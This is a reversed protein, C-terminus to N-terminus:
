GNSTKGGMSEENDEGLNNEENAARIIDEGVECLRDFRELLKALYHIIQGAQEETIGNM